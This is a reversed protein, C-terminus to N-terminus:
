RSQCGACRGQLSGARTQCPRRASRSHQPSPRTCPVARTPCTCHMLPSPSTASCQSQTPRPTHLASISHHPAHATCQMLTPRPTHLASHNLPSPRPKHCRVAPCRLPQLAPILRSPAPSRPFLVGHSRGRQGARVGGGGAQEERGQPRLHVVILAAKVLAPAVDGLHSGAHRRHLFADVLAQCRSADRGERSHRLQHRLCAPSPAQTAAATNRPQQTLSRDPGRGRWREQRRGFWVLGPGREAKM